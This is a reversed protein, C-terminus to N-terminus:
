SDILTIRMEIKIIRMRTFMQITAAAFLRYFIADMSEQAVDNRKEKKKLKSQQQQNNNNSKM